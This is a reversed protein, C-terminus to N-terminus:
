PIDACAIGVTARAMESSNDIDGTYIQHEVDSYNMEMKCRAGYENDLEKMEGLLATHLKAVECQREKDAADKADVTIDQAAKFSLGAKREMVQYFEVCSLDAAAVGSSCISALGALIALRGASFTM